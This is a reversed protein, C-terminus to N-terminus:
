IWIKIVRTLISNEKNEMKILHFFSGFKLTLRHNHSYVPVFLILFSTIISFTLIVKTYSLISIFNTYVSDEEYGMKTPNCRARQQQPQQLNTIILDVKLNWTDVTTM